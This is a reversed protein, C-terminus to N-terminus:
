FKISLSKINSTPFKASEDFSIGLRSFLIVLKLFNWENFPDLLSKNPAPLELDFVRKM